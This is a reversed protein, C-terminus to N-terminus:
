CSHNIFQGFTNEGSYVIYLFGDLDKQKEYINIMLEATPPLIKNVFLFIAQEPRLKIHKRIEYCFKGVTIDGPVLFKVKDCLPVDSKPSRSVIVPVRGPYKSLIRSAVEKRKEFTHSEKFKLNSTSM